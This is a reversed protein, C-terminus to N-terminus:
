IEMKLIIVNDVVRSIRFGYNFCAQLSSDPNKIKASVTTTLVKCKADKASAKIQDMMKTGVRMHRQDERVFVDEVYCEDGSILYTAFGYAGEVIRAGRTEWIYDGFLSM